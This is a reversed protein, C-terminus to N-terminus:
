EVNDEILFEVEEPLIRIHSVGRPKDKLSLRLRNGSSKMVEDYTVVIAFKDATVERFRKMGVHFTVSVMGPFTKLTKGAPFNIYEVPVQVTNETVLDADFTVKIKEPVIKAGRIKALGVTHTTTKNLKELVFPKTYVRTLTDLLERSAYVKAYQPSISTDGVAYLSDATIKGNIVVPVKVYTGYNYFYEVTDPKVSVVKTAVNLKEFTERTIESTLISVYGSSKVYDNFDIKITDLLNSYKYKLLTGGNDHLTVKIVNQPPTTIVVNGPVNVLKVPVSVELDYEEELTLFLWFGFSLVLFFLFAWLNRNLSSKLFRKAKVYKRKYSMGVGFIKHRM